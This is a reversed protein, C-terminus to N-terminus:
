LQYNQMVYLDNNCLLLMLVKDPTPLSSGNVANALGLLGQISSQEKCMLKEPPVVSITRRPQEVTPEAEEAKPLSDLFEQNLDVASMTVNIYDKDEDREINLNLINSPDFHNEPVTSDEDSEEKAIVNEKATLEAKAKM